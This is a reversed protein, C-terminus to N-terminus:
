RTACSNTPTNSSAGFDNHKKLKPGSTISRVSSGFPVTIEIHVTAAGSSSKSEKSVDEKYFKQKSAM